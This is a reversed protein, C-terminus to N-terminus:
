TTKKKLGEQHYRIIQSGEDLATRELPRLGKKDKLNQLIILIEGTEM